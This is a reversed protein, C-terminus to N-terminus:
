IEKNEAICESGDERCIDAWEKVKERRIVKKYVKQSAIIKEEIWRVCVCVSVCM